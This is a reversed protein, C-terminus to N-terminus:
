VPRREREDAERTAKATADLVRRIWESMTVRRIHAAERWAQIQPEEAAVTVRKMQQM